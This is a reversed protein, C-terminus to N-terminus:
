NALKELPYLSMYSVKYFMTPYNMTFFEWLLNGETQKKGRLFEM